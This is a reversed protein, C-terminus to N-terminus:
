AALGTEKTGPIATRAVALECGALRFGVSGLSRLSSYRQGLFGADQELADDLVVAALFIAIIFFLVVSFGHLALLVLDTLCAVLLVFSIRTSYFSLVTLHYSVKISFRLCM